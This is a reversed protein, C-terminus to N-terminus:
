PRQITVRLNTVAVGDYNEISLWHTGPAATFTFTQPKAGTAGSGPDEFCSAPNADACSYIDVDAGSDWDVTFTLETSDAVVYKYLSCPGTSAFPQEGCIAINNPGTPFNTIMYTTGGSAAPLNITPATAYDDDGVWFDGTQVVTGVSPLTVVLGAVYTVEIGAITVPGNAGFPVLVKIVDRTKSVVFGSGAAGFTVAVTAPDFKLTASSTITLTDGGKPTGTSFTGNFGAPLVAVSVTDEIGGGAVRVCSANASVATVIVQASTVPVPHYGTDTAVTVDATCPTFTIPVALPTARADLVRANVTASGGIPLQLYSFNTVVASPKGDLDSLPDSKCGGVTFALVALVGFAGFLRRNM